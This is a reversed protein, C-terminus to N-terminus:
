TFIQEKNINQIEQVVLLGAIRIKIPIVKEFCYTGRNYGTDVLLRVGVGGGM